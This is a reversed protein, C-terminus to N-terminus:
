WEPNRIGTQTSGTGSGSGQAVRVRGYFYRTRGVRFDRNRIRVGLFVRSESEYGQEWVIKNKFEGHEPFKIGPTRQTLDKWRYFLDFSVISFNPFLQVFIEKLFFMIVSPVM